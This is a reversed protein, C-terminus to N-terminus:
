VKTYIFAKNELTRILFVCIGEFNFPIFVTLSKKKKQSFPLAKKM